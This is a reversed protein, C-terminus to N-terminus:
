GKILSEKLRDLCGQISLDYIINGKKISIGGILGPDLHFRLDVLAGELEELQEKLFKKEQPSLPVVSYVDFTIIGKEENWIEPLQAIIEPLLGVRGNEVLLLLFRRTKASIEPWLQFISRAIEQRKTPSLIPTVLVRNLQPHELLIKQFSQLEKYVQSFEEPSDLAKVLGETYRKVIM